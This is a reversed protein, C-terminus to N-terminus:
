SIIGAAARRPQAGPCASIPSSCVGCAVGPHAFDARSGLLWSDPASFAAPKPVRLFLHGLAAHHAASRPAAGPQDGFAWAQQAPSAEAAALCRECLDYNPCMACRYRVGCLPSAGCGDCGIGDHVAEVVGFM